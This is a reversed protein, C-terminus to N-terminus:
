HGRQQRGVVDPDAEPMDSIEIDQVVFLHSSGFAVLSLVMSGYPVRTGGTAGHACIVVLDPDEVELMEHLNSRPRGYAVVRGEAKVGEAILRLALSAVYSEAERIAVDRLSAVAERIETPLPDRRPLEPDSLLHCLELNAGHALALDVARPLVCEARASGDLPALIRHYTLAGEHGDRQAREARVLLLGTTVRSFVKHVVTGVSTHDLGQRGHSCLVILDHGGERATNAITEAARGEAVVPRAAIGAEGLRAVVDNLYAAAHERELSYHLPDWSAGSPSVAPELVHLLTVELRGSRDLAMVHPLVSEALPSTDLPVLVRNFM